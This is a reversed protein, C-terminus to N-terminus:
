RRNTPDIAVGTITFPLIRRIYLEVFNGVDAIGSTQCFVVDGPLLLFDVSGEYLIDDLNVRITRARGGGAHRLVRVDSSKATIRLGGASAIAQSLTLGPAYAMPGGKQVEGAVYVSRVRAEALAISVEPNRLVNEYAAQVESRLAGITKAAARIEADIRRLRITGQPSVVVEQSLDDDPPEPPPYVTVALRDGPQVVYDRQMFAAWERVVAEADFPPAGACATLLLLPCALCLSSPPTM